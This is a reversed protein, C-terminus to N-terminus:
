FKGWFDFHFLILFVIVLIFIISIFLNFHISTIRVFTFHVYVLTIDSNIYYLRKKKLYHERKERQGCTPRMGCWVHSWFGEVWRIERERKKKMNLNFNMNNKYTNIKVLLEIKTNIFVDNIKFFILSFNYLYFFEININYYYNLM